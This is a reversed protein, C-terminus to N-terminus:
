GTQETWPIEHFDVFNRPVAVRAPRCAATGVSFSYFSTWGVPQGFRTGIRRESRGKSQNRGDDEPLHGHGFRALSGFLCGRSFYRASVRIVRRAGQSFLERRQTRNDLRGRVSAAFLVEPCEDAV